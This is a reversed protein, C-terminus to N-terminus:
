KPDSPERPHGPLSKEGSTDPDKSTDPGKRAHLAAVLNWTLSTIIARDKQTLTAGARLLAIVKRSAAILNTIEERM